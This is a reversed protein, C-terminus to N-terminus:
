LNDKLRKLLLKIKEEIINYELIEESQYIIFFHIKKNKERLRNYLHIKNIRYVEKIRRKIFNRHSALRIKKKPVVILAQCIPHNEFDNFKWLLHFSQIKISRGNNFLSNIQIQNTLREKKTFKYM